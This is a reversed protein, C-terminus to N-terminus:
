TFHRDRLGFLKLLNLVRLLPQSILLLIVLLDLILQEIALSM